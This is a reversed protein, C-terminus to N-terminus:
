DERHIGKFKTLITNGLKSFAVYGITTNVDGHGVFNALEPLLVGDEIAHCILTHRFSHCTIRRNIGIKECQKKIMVRIYDGKLRKGFKSTFLANVKRKGRLLLWLKLAQFVDDNFQILREKDGKGNVIMIRKKMNVSNLNLGTLESIRLGCNYLITLICNDRPNKTTDLLRRVEERSLIQSEIFAQSSKMKEKPIKFYMPSNGKYEDSEILWRYFSKIASIKHYVSKVSIEKKELHEKFKECNKRTVKTFDKKVFGFFDDLDMRYREITAQSFNGGRKNGHKLFREMAKKTKADM